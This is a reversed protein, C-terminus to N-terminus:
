MKSSSLRTACCRPPRHAGLEIALRDPDDLIQFQHADLSVENIELERGTAERVKEAIVPRYQDFDMTQVFVIAAIVVVALLALVTMLITKLRM